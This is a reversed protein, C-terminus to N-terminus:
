KQGSDNKNENKLDFPRTSEDQFRIFNTPVDAM